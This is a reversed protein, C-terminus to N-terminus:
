CNRRVAAGNLAVDVVQEAWHPGIPGITSSLLMRCILVLVEWVMQKYFASEDEWIMPPFCPGRSKEGVLSDCYQRISVPTNDEKSMVRVM